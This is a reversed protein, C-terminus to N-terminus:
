KAKDCGAFGSLQTLEANPTKHLGPLALRQIYAKTRSSVFEDVQREAERSRQCIGQKATTHIENGSLAGM